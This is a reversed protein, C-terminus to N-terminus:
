YSGETREMEPINEMDDQFYLVFIIELSIDGFCEKIETTMLVLELFWLGLLLITALNEEVSKRTHNSLDRGRQLVFYFGTFAVYNQLLPLPSPIFPSKKFLFEVYFTRVSIRKEIFKLYMEARSNM